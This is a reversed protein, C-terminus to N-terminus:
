LVEYNTSWYVLCFLGTPCHPIGCYEWRSTGESNYCWPANETDPNRCFNHDGLGHNPYSISPVPWLISGRNNIPCSMTLMKSILIYWDYLSGSTLNFLYLDLIESKQLGQILTRHRSQGSRVFKGTNQPVRSDETNTDKQIEKGTTVIWLIQHLELHKVDYNINM